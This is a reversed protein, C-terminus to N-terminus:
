VPASNFRHRLDDIVWPRDGPLLWGQQVLRDVLPRIRRQYDAATGYRRTLEAAPFPRYGGFNGCVDTTTIVPPVAPPDPRGLPLDVEPFRVGGM